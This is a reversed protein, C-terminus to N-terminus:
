HRCRNREARIVTMDMAVLTGPFFLVAGIGSTGPTFASLGRWMANQVVPTVLRM